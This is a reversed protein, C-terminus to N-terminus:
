VRGRNKVRASKELTIRYGWFRGKCIFSRAAGVLYSLCGFSSIIGYWWPLNFPRQLLQM